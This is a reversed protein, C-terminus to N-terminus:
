VKKGVGIEPVTVSKQARIPDNTLQQYVHEIFIIFHFNEFTDSPGIQWQVASSSCSTMM